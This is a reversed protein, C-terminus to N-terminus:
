TDRMMGQLAPYALAGKSWEFTGTDLLERAATNLAGMSASYLSSGLSIRRVGLDSLDAITYPQGIGVLVNIPTRVAEIVERVADTSMLVPAYLLPAGVKEFARLREIVELLNGVGAFFADARACLVFPNPLANATEIAATIRDTARGIDYLPADPDGTTDEISCGVCGAEHALHIADAVDEPRDGFGNLFDATVPLETATAIQEANAVVIDRVQSGDKQGNAWALGASTTGIAVAGADTLLRASGADWANPLVFTGSQHLDWFIRAKDTQTTM